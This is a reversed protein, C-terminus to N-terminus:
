AAAEEEPGAFVRRVHRRMLYALTLLEVVIETLPSVPLTAATLSRVVSSLLLLVVLLVIVLWAWHQLLVFQLAVYLFLPGVALMVLWALWSRGTGSLAFFVGSLILGAGVFFLLGALVLVGIPARRFVETLGAAAPLPSPSM